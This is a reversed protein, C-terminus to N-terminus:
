TNSFSLVRSKCNARFDKEVHQYWYNAKGLSSSLAGLPTLASLSLINSFTALHWMMILLLLSTESEKM